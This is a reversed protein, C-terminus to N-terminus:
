EIIGALYENVTYHRGAPLVVTTDVAELIAPGKVVNGAKLKGQEYIATPRYTGFEEWFVERRGKYADKPPSSGTLPYKPLEIKPRLVTSHLVFNEIDVGGEPYIALVPALIAFADNGTEVLTCRESLGCREIESKLADRVLESRSAHCATGGCIMLHKEGDRTVPVKGLRIDIMAQGKARIENLQVKTIATM